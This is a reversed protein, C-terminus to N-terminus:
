SREEISCRLQFRVGFDRKRLNKVVGCGMVEAGIYGVHMTKEKRAFNVTPRAAYEMGNMREGFQALTMGCYRRALRPVMWKGWDGHRSLWRERPDERLKREPGYM